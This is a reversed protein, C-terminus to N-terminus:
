GNRDRLPATGVSVGPLTAASVVDGFKMVRAQAYSGDIPEWRQHVVQGPLDVVWYEPIGGRAYLGPKYGLDEAHTTNCIEVALRVREVPVFDRTRMPDWVIADPIPLNCPGVRVSVGPLVKFSSGLAKLASSLAECVAFTAAAHPVHLPSMRHLLGERLEVRDDTSGFVGADCMASVQDVTFRFLTAADGNLVAEPVNAVAQDM